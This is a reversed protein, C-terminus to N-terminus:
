WPARLDAKRLTLNIQFVLKELVNSLNTLSTLVLEALALFMLKDCMSVFQRIFPFKHNQRLNSM